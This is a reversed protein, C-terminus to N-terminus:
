VCYGYLIFLLAYSVSRGKLIQQFKERTNELYMM